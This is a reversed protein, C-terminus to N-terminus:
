EQSATRRRRILHRIALYAGIMVAAVLPKAIAVCVEGVCVVKNKLRLLFDNEEEKRLEEDLRKMQELRERETEQAWGYTSVITMIIGALFARRGRHAM